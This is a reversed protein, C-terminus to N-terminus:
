GPTSGGAVLIYHGVTTMSFFERPVNLEAVEGWTGGANSYCRFM